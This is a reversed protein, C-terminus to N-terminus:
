EDKMLVLLIPFYSYAKEQKAAIIERKAMNQYDDITRSLSTLSM